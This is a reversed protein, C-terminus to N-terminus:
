RQGNLRPRENLMLWYLNVTELMQLLGDFEIPIPFRQRDAYAGDGALYEVAADGDGMVQIPNALKAKDFGRRILMVDTANDEVILITPDDVTM